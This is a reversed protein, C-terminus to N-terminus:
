LFSPSLFVSASAFCFRVGTPKLLCSYKRSFSFLSLMVILGFPVQICRAQSESSYVRRFFFSAALDAIQAFPCSFPTNSKRQSQPSFGRIPSCSVLMQSRSHSFSNSALLTELSFQHRFAPLLSSSFPSEPSFLSSIFSSSMQYPVARLIIAVSIWM